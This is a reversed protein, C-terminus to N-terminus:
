IFAKGNFNMAKIQYKEIKEKKNKRKDIKKLCNRHLYKSLSESLHREIFKQHAKVM